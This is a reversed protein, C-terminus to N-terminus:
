TKEKKKKKKKKKKAKLTILKQKGTTSTRRYFGLDGIVVTSRQQVLGAERLNSVSNVEDRFMTGSAVM